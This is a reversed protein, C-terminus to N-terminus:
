SEFQHFPQDSRASSPQMGERQRVAQIQDASGRDSAGPFRRDLGRGGSLADMGSHQRRPEVVELAPVAAAQPIRRDQLLIWRYVQYDARMPGYEEDLQMFGSRHKCFDCTSRAM